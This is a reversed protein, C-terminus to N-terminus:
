DSIRHHGDDVDDVDGILMVLVDAAPNDIDDGDYVCM